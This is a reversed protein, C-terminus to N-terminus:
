DVEEIMPRVVPRMALGALRTEDLAFTKMEQHGRAGQPGFISKKRWAELSEIVARIHGIVVEDTDTIEVYKLVTIVEALNEDAFGFGLQLGREDAADLAKILSMIVMVAARRLIARDNSKELKLIALVFDVATSTITAGVGAVNTEIATGLISLASTRIRIDEERGTDAWGEVVRAIHANMEGDEGNDDVEAPIEGDWAEEAEKRAKDVKRKARERKQLTKPRDGRRSAVAIMREGVLSAVTGMFLEGLHEITKNLAEGVRIRVDLTTDESSDAYREVLMQVVTKPHNSALYGLAKIASLYIYEDEDQLLSLLLIGTSPINLIPSSKLILNTLTSVGQARVPALDDSLHILATRHENRDDAHLDNVHPKMTSKSYKSIDSRLQLLVLINSASMTISSDLSSSAQAIYELSIQISQLISEGIDLPNDSPALVASLLSLASSVPGTSEYDEDNDRTPHSAIADLMRLRPLATRAGRETTRQHETVFASLIPGILQFIGLLSSSIQDKFEELLRQALKASILSEVPDRPDSEMVDLRDNESPTPSENLWRKCVHTFVVSLQDDTLFAARLLRSYQGVRIDISQILRAMIESHDVETARQRIEIGGSDGPMFTWLPPGNWLLHDSLLLLQSDTVSIKMYTNLIRHIDDAWGARLHELAYCQLGWLPLLVPVVLRKTLGPNRHFQVLIALRDIALKLMKEPVPCRDVRPHLSEFIPEAFLRWGITGPSGIKRKCLTGNGIIYSAIRQNDPNPDDWLDLLQPALASFYDDATMTSPISTLLRSARALADSTLNSGLSPNHHQDAHQQADGSTSGAIFDIIQRLGYPRLPLLSLYSSVPSRLWDPCSPHLLSTLLPLVDIAPKSDLLSDFYSLYKQRFEATFNPSFAAEAVAAILDVLMRAEVSSALGQRSLVIPYLRDVITAILERDQLNEPNPQSLPRTVLDGKLASKVRREMPVGVGPSLCPYIGELVVLDILTDILKQSKSGAAPQELRPSDKRSADHLSSLLHLAKNIVTRRQHPYQRSDNTPPSGPQESTMCEIISKTQAPRSAKVLIPALFREAESLIHDEM